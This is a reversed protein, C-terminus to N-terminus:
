EPWVPEGTTLRLSIAGTPCMEAARLVDEDREIEASVPASRDEDTLRFRGMAVAVCTGSGVCYDQDVEIRWTDM